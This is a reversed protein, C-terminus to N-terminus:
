ESSDNKVFLRKKGLRKIHWGRCSKCYYVTSENPNKGKAIMKATTESVYSTKVCIM